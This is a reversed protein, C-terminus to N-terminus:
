RDVVKVLVRRYARMLYKGNDVIELISHYTKAGWKMIKTEDLPLKSGEDKGPIRVEVKEMNKKTSVDEFELKPVEFDCTWQTASPERYNM